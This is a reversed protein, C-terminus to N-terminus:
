GPKQEETGEPRVVRYVTVRRGDRLAYRRELLGEEVKRRLIPYITQQACGMMEAIERPTKWEPGPAVVYEEDRLVERFEALIEADTLGLEGEM